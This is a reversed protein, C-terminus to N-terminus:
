DDDLEFRKEFSQPEASPNNYTAQVEIAKYIAVYETIDHAEDETFLTAVGNILSKEVLCNDAEYCQPDYDCVDVDAGMEEDGEDDDCPAVTLDIFKLEEEDISEIGALRFVVTGQAQQDVASDKTIEVRASIAGEDLKAKLTASGGEALEVMETLELVRREPAVSADQSNGSTETEQEAGNKSCSVALCLLGLIALLRRPIVDISM